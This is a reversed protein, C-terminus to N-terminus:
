AAVGLNSTMATTNLTALVRERWQLAYTLCNACNKGGKPHSGGCLILRNDPHKQAAYFADASWALSDSSTVLHGYRRLGLIKAGLIHLRRLGRARLALIIRHAEATGQRRCMSGVLVLPQSTLDIGAEEIMDACRLYDDPEYGQVAWAWPLDPAIMSLEVANDRTRRLHELVSLKTGAFVQRGVRGGKIVIPECMWDQPAAWALNGIEDRYRRVRSAYERATVTWRGYKQLETFGGSDNAWRAAARPLRKRERLRTDSVFLPVGAHELWGTQHTGMLFDEPKM